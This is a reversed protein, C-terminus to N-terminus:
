ILVCHSVILVSDSMEVIYFLVSININEFLRVNM